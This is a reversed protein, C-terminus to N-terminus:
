QNFLDEKKSESPREIERITQSGWDISFDEWLDSRNADVIRKFLFNDRASEIAKKFINPAGPIVGSVGLIGSIIAFSYIYIIDSFYQTVIQGVASIIALSVFILMQIFSLKKQYRVSQSVWGSLMELDKAKADRIEAERAFREEETIKIKKRWNKEKEKFKEANEAIREEARAEFQEGITKEMSDFLDLVNKNTVVRDTNLTKDALMQVSRPRTLMANFQDILEPKVEGLKQRVRDPLSKRLRLVRECSGLVQRRSFEKKGQYGMTMMMLAAMARQHILPGFDRNGILDNEVCFRKSFECFIRNRSVMLFQSKLPDRSRGGGRRRMILAVSKADMERASRRTHWNARDSFEQYLSDSFYQHSNPFSALSQQIVSAGLINKAHGAIDDMVTRAFGEHVERKRIAEATPGFRDPVAHEFMTWLNRRAEECTHDFVGINAGLKRLLEILTVARDQLAKGSLGMADMLLPADLCVTLTPERRSSDVPNRIDLVVETLLAVSAIDVLSDFLGENTKELKSIFRACLYTEEGNLNPSIFINDSSEEEEGNDGGPDESKLMREVANTLTARDYGEVAVIWNLIMEELESLSYQHSLLPSIESCFEEFHKGIESLILEASSELRATEEGGVSNCLYARQGDYNDTATVRGTDNFRQLVEEAVDSDMPWDYLERVRASFRDPDFLEGAMENIIPDFFPMLGTLLDNFGELQQSVVFFTILQRRHLRAM